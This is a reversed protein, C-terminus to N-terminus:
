PAGLHEALQPRRKIRLALNRGARLLPYLARTRRPSRLTWTIARGAPGDLGAMVAIATVAEEGFYDRGGFSFVNGRDLDLGAARLRAVEPGGDRADVLRVTGIASRLRVLRAFHSFLPCDGDYVLVAEGAGTDAKAGKNRPTKADSRRMVLGSGKRTRPLRGPALAWAYVTAM